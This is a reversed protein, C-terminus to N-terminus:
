TTTKSYIIAEMMDNRAFRLPSGSDVSIALLEPNGSEPIVVSVFDIM